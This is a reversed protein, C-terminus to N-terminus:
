PAKLLKLRAEYQSLNSADVDAEGCDCDDSSCWDSGCGDCNCDGCNGNVCPDCPCDCLDDGDADSKAANAKSALKLREPVRKLKALSRFSAALSLAADDQQSPDAIATAFGQALCEEAGMWTEADMIAKVESWTKGTRSVYTQGISQSITDLVDACQRMAAADGACFTWANHIMMMANHGVTITDGAMAIISAASAAIGDVFVSIPKGLSRLVNYIAVGEFADGGPSNVRVAVSNFVGADDVKQKIGLATVGGGTWFDEGIEEYVLIELVGNPQLSARFSRQMSARPSSARQKVALSLHKAKKM